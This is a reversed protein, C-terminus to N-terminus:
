RIRARSADRPHATLTASACKRKMRIPAGNFGFGAVLFLPAWCGALAAAKRRGSLRLAVALGLSGAAAWLWGESYAGCTEPPMASVPQIQRRKRLIEIADFWDQEATRSNDQGRKLWLERAVAAIEQQDPQSKDAEFNM